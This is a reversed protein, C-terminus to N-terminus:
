IIIIILRLVTTYKCFGIDVSFSLSNLAELRVRWRFQSMGDKSIWGGALYVFANFKKCVWCALGKRNGSKLAWFTTLFVLLMSEGCKVTMRWLVWRSNLKRKQGEKNSILSEVKIQLFQESVFKCMDYTGICNWNRLYDDSWFKLLMVVNSWWM